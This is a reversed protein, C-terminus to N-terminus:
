WPRPTSCSGCRPVSCGTVVLAYVAYSEAFLQLALGFGFGLWLWGYPNHPRRSAILGGLIPSGILGVLSVAQDRWPTGRAAAANVLRPRDAVAVVGPDIPDRRV